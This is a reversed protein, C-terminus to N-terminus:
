SKKFYNPNKGYGSMCGNAFLEYLKGDDAGSIAGPYTLNAQQSCVFSVNLDSGAGGSPNETAYMIGSAAASAEEPSLTGQVLGNSDYYSSTSSTNSSTQTNAGNTVNNSGFAILAVLIVTGVTGIAGFWISFRALGMGTEQGNSRKIQQKAKLGIFWGLPPIFFDVVLAIIALTSTKAYNQENNSM